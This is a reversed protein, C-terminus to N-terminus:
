DEGKEEGRKRKRNRAQLKELLVNLKARDRHYQRDVELKIMDCALPFVAEEVESHLMELRPLHKSIADRVRQACHQQVKQCRSNLWEQEKSLLEIVKYRQETCTGYNSMETESDMETGSNEEFELAFDMATKSNVSKAEVDAKAELLCQVFDPYGKYSAHMLPTWGDNDKTELNAHAEKVLYKVVFEDGYCGYYRGVAINLATDGSKTKAELNAGAELLCQILGRVCAHQSDLEVAKM